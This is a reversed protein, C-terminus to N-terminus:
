NKNFIKSYSYQYEADRLAQKYLHPLGPDGLSMIKADIKIRYIM